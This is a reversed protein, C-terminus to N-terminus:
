FNRGLLCKLTLEVNIKPQYSTTVDCLTLGVNFCRQMKWRQVSCRPVVDFSRKWKWRRNECHQANDFCRQSYLWKFFSILMLEFASYYKQVEFFINSEINKKMKGWKLEKMVSATIMYFDTMSQNRYSLPRRWSLTLLLKLFFTQQAEFFRLADFKSFLFM